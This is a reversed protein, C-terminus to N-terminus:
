NSLKYTGNEYLADFQLIEGSQGRVKHDLIAVMRFGLGRMLDNMEVALKSEQYLSTLSLELMCFRAKRFVESGGRIVRDEFGQVDIKIFDPPLLQKQEVIGSLTATQVEHIRTKAAHPFEKLTIAQMPLLSSSPNFESAHFLRNEVRDGLAVQLCEIKRNERCKQVLIAFVDAAPEFCYVHSVTRVKAAFDAFMGINAGIDYVVIHNKWNFVNQLELYALREPHAFARPNQGDQALGLFSKWIASLSGAKSVLREAKDLIFRRCCNM